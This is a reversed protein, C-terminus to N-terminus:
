RAQGLHADLAALVAGPESMQAALSQAAALEPAGLRSMLQQLNGNAPNGPSPDKLAALQYLACAVVDNTAGGRGHAFMFGLNNLANPHHQAAAKRFWAVAEQENEVVGVGHLYRSGLNSQAIADGAQAARLLWRVARHDDATVGRGHAYQLSLNNQAKLHGRTAAVGLWRSAGAPDQAAISLGALNYAASAHDQKAAKEYWQKAAAQDPPTGLGNAYLYGVNFQADANGHEALPKWMTLATAYDGSKAAALGEDFTHPSASCGLVAFVLLLRLANAQM